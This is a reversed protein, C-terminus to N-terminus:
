YGNHENTKVVYMLQLNFYSLAHHTQSLLLFQNSSYIFLILLFPLLSLLLPLLSWLLSLPLLSLLLPLLSWLLTVPLLSLLLPLLSWLLTLLSLFQNFSEVFPTLLSLLLPLLSWLLPSLSLNLLARWSRKFICLLSFLFHTLFKKVLGESSDSLDM